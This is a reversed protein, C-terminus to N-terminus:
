SEPHVTILPKALHQAVVATTSGLIIRAVGTRGHTSMVVLDAEDNAMRSIEAHAAFGKEIMTTVPVSVAEGEHEYVLKDEFDESMRQISLHHKDRGEELFSDVSEILSEYLKDSDEYVPPMVEMGFVYPEVIHVLSIQANWDRALEFAKVLAPIAEESGDLPVMINNIDQPTFAKSLSLVPIESYRIVQETIHSRLSKSKHGGKNSMIILDHGKDHATHTIINSIKRGVLNLLQGSHEKPIHQEAIEQLRERANELAHPYIDNDMDFPVGLHDISEQYYSMLPIVHILDITSGYDEIFEKGMKIAELSADSFDTPILIKDAKM